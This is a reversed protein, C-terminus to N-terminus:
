VDAEAVPHDLGSPGSLLRQRASGPLRLSAILDAMAAQRGAFRDLGLGAATAWYEVVLYDGAAPALGALADRELAVVAVGPLRAAADSLMAPVNMPGREVVLRTSGAASVREALLEVAAPILRVREWTERAAVADPELGLYALYRLLFTRELLARNGAAAAHVGLLYPRLTSAIVLGSTTQYDARELGAAFLEWDSRLGDQYAAGTVQHELREPTEAHKYLPREIVHVAGHDALQGFMRWFGITTDDFFCRRQAVETRMVGFTLMNGNRAM